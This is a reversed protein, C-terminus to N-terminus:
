FIEFLYFQLELSFLSCLSQLPSWHTLNWKKSKVCNNGQLVEDLLGIAQIRIALVAALESPTDVDTRLAYPLEDKEELRIPPEFTSLLTEIIYNSAEYDAAFLM